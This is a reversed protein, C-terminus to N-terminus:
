YDSTWKKLIKLLEPDMKDATTINILQELYM